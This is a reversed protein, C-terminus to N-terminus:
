RLAHLKRAARDRNLAALAHPHDKILKTLQSVTCCLRLAASKMDLNAAHIVDLAEALLAPYDRHSPNCAIQGADNCRSRWLDSRIDGWNDRPVLASRVRIALELRLRFLAERRNTEASRSEAAQAEVGTPEHVIVIATSVKNRHQGGPGSSRGRTLRCQALLEEDTLAAPHM